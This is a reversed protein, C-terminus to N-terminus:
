IRKNNNNNNFDNIYSYHFCLWNNVTLHLCHLCTTHLSVDRGERGGARRGARQTQKVCCITVCETESDQRDGPRGVERGCDAHSGPQRPDRRVHMGPRKGSDDQFGWYTHSDSHGRHQRQFSGEKPLKGMATWGGVIRRTEWGQFGLKM